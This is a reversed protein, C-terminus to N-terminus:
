AGPIVHHSDTNDVHRFSPIYVIIVRLNFASLDSAYDPCGGISGGGWMAETQLYIEDENVCDEIMQGIDM